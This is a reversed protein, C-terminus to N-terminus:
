CFRIVALTWWLVYESLNPGVGIETLYNEIKPPPCVPVSCFCYRRPEAYVSIIVAATHIHRQCCHSSTTSCARLHSMDLTVGCSKRSCMTRRSGCIDTSSTSVTRRCACVNMANHVAPVTDISWRSWRGDAKLRLTCCGTSHCITMVDDDDDGVATAYATWTSRDQSWPQSVAPWPM